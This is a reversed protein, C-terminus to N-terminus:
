TSTLTPSAWSSRRAALPILLPFKTLPTNPIWIQTVLRPFHERRVKMNELTRNFEVEDNMGQMRVNNLYAYDIM